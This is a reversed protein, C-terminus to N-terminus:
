EDGEEMPPVTADVPFCLHFAVGGREPDREAFIDGGHAAMFGRCIALGLGSGKAESGGRYFRDFLHPLDKSAIESGSNFVTVEVAEEGREARIEIRNGPGSFKTANELLNTFVREILVFDLKLLPLGPEVRVTVDFEALRDELAGLAAGVIDELDVWDLAPRVAGAQIATQDLLNVVYRELRQAAQMITSLLQKRREAPLDAETMDLTSAAGIISGLPTRFDHSVSSLLASRLRESEATVRADEIKDRLEIREIALGILNAAATILRRRDGVEEHALILAGMVRDSARLDFVDCASRALVARGDDPLYLRASPGFRPGLIEEVRGVMEARSSSENVARKLNILLELENSREKAIQAQIRHSEAEDRARAALTGTSFAVLLYVALIVADDATHLGFGYKPEFFLFNGTLAAILITAVSAIRGHRAAVWLVPVLYIMVAGSTALWEHFLSIAVTAVAVAPIGAVLRIAM